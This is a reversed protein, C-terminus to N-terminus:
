EYEVKLSSFTELRKVQQGTKPIGDTIKKKPLLEDKELDM